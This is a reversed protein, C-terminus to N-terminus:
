PVVLYFLPFIFIWVLDVLHWYLGANELAVHDEADIAERQVMRAVVALIVLGIIIHVAHLGTIVFYLNFFTIEGKKLQLLYAANPFLGDYYKGMWEISKIGLFTLGCLITGILFRVAHGNRGVRVAAVSLAVFLSSTLLVITNTTGMVTSLHKAAASFEASYTKSYVAYLIFLGGFLMLETFLFLWMGLRSGVPDNHM